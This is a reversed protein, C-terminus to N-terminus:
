KKSHGSSNGQRTFLVRLLAFVNLLKNAKLYKGDMQSMNQLLIDRFQQPIHLSIHTTRHKKFNIADM